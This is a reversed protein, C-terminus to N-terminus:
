ILFLLDASLWLQGTLGRLDRHWDPIEFVVVKEERLFVATLNGWHVNQCSLTKDETSPFALFLAPLCPWPFPSRSGQGLHQLGPDGRHGGRAPGGPTESTGLLVRGPAPAPPLLPSPLLGM